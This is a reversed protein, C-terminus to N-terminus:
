SMFSQQLTELSPQNNWFSSFFPFLLHKEWGQSESAPLFLLSGRGEGAQSKGAGAERHPFPLQRCDTGHRRERWLSDDGGSPVKCEVWPGDGPAAPACPTVERSQWHTWLIGAIARWGGPPSAPTPLASTTKEETGKWNNWDSTKREELPYHSFLISKPLNFISKLPLNNLVVSSIPRLDWM